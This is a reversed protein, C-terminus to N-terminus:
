TWSVFAGQQGGPKGPPEDLPQGADIAPEQDGVGGAEPALVAGLHRPLQAHAELAGCHLASRHADPAAMEAGEEIQKSGSGGLAEGLAPSSSRAASRSDRPGAMAAIRWRPAM